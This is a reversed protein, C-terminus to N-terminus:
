GSIRKAFFCRDQLFDKRILFQFVAYTTQKAPLTTDVGDPRRDTATMYCM